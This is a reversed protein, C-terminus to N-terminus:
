IAALQQRNEVVQPHTIHFDDNYLVQQPTKDNDM